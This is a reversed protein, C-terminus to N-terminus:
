SEPTCTITVTGEGGHNEPLTYSVRATGNADATASINGGCTITPASAVPPPPPPTPATATKSCSVLALAFLAILTRRAITRGGEQRDRDGQIRSRGLEDRVRQLGAEHADRHRHRQRSLRVARQIGQMGRASESDGSGM